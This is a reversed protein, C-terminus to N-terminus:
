GEGGDITDIIAASEAAATAVRWALRAAFAPDDHERAWDNPNNVIGSAKDQAVAVREAVWELASRGNVVYRQAAEPIGELAVGEALLLTDRRDRAPWRMKEVTLALGEFPPEVVKGDATLRMGEPPQPEANEAGGRWVGDAGWLHLLALRHGAEMLRRAARPSEPLALRPLGKRLDPAFRQRWTPSHLLGYTMFFIAERAMDADTAGAGGDADGMAGLTGGLARRWEALTAETVGAARGAAGVIYDTVAPQRRYGEADYGAARWGAESEGATADQAFLGGDAAGRKGRAEDRSEYRWLPYCQSSGCVHLDPILDTIICSFDTTDGVSNVCIALNRHRPTPFLTPLTYTREVLRKDYYLNQVTFPRYLAKCIRGDEYEIKDGRKLEQMFVGNWSIRASDYEVFKAPDTVESQAHFREMNETYFDIMSSVTKRLKEESFRYLFADKATNIGKSYVSFFSRAATDFKKEPTLPTLADFAGDRQNVWDAKDNPVVETAMRAFEDSTVSGVRRLSALKEERSLYDGVDALMIRAQAGAARAGPRRVLVTIAIPTRSGLEFINDGETRRLEGSTRCNGRLHFVYIDDWERALCRRMGDQGNGDIWGANSIFAAVGGAEGREAVRDSAWRFAKIYSDYLSKVSNAASGMAYTEAIRQELAPYHTNQANDNASKQGVSYPPNGWVVEVGGAIAAEAERANQGLDGEFRLTGRGETLEFTDALCIGDYKEYAGGRLAVRALGNYATEINVDAVYYSLPVIENCRLGERYARRLAADSIDARESLLQLARATFTGTGAFPDLCRAGAVGERVGFDRRLIGDVSRIIFDVCEVPTYVIGMQEAVRPFATKFFQEYLTRIMEQRKAATDLGRCVRAVQDRFDTLLRRDDAFAEGELTDLMREMARAVNNNAAMAYDPFIADFVPRTVMHQALFTVADAETVTDNVSERLQAVFADMAERHRGEALMDTIRETFRAAVEGAKRSWRPWYLRDGVVESMRAYLRETAEVPFLSLIDQPPRNGPNKGPRKGGGNNGGGGPRLSAVRVHSYTHSSLEAALAEDHSRLACLIDWVPQFDTSRVAANPDAQDNVVVPVIVYGYRKGAFRRMVRGVSQVLTIPSKRPALFIVADLAPVDVGESLCSVNCVVHAEGDRPERLIQLARERESTPMAGTVSTAVVDALGEAYRERAKDPGLEREEKEMAARYQAAINMMAVAAESTVIKGAGTKRTRTVNDCFAIATRLPHDRDADDAFPDKEDPMNDVVMKSMAAVSGLIRTTIEPVIAPGTGSESAKKVEDLLATPTQSAGLTLVIVKYDTLLGREVAQGFSLTYIRPGFVTEDDMSYLTDDKAEAHAKEVGKYVKPTATMYLRRRTRIYDEDHVRAFPTAERKKGKDAGLHIAATRHAEDCVVLDFEVGAEAQAKHVVEISQYTAFLVTLGRAASARRLAAAADSPDTTSPIPLDILSEAMADGDDNAMGSASADSCVCAAAIPEAASAFWSRLTQGVLAISPALFLVTRGAGDGGQGCLAQAIFLSTLTKGTGCAMVLTGRDHTEYHRLARDVIEAQYDRPTAPQRPPQEGGTALADWDVPSSALTGINVEVVAPEQDQLAERANEGYTESTSVWMRGKFRFNAWGEAKPHYAKGSASIFSDVAQKMVVTAEDYFKCQIATLDGTERSRAVIDVGMDRADLGAEAAFDAWLWARDFLAGYLPDATLWRAILKEFRAGKDREDTAAARLAALTDYITTM